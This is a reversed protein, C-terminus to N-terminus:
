LAIDGDLGNYLGNWVVKGGGRVALAEVGGTAAIAERNRHDFSLNWLAGAAEQCRCSSIVSSKKRRRFSQIGEVGPLERSSSNKQLLEEGGQTEEGKRHHNKEVITKAM